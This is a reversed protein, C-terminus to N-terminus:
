GTPVQIPGTQWLDPHEALWTRADRRGLDRAADFFDPDFLLYSLLEGQLPSDSGLLRHVMQLDPDSLTGRWSKHNERFVALATDALADGREPAVAVYPVVRYAARGRSARHRDLAPRLADDEAMANTEALRRLDHRMPDDMVSGLLTAGSDGLDVPARDLAPDAPRPHLSGTGVAVLRGAGLELAPALPVRRRTAGDAYWGAAEEPSDVHVSPFLTPIAASAMLHEVGLRTRVFRRYGDPTSSGPLDAHHPDTETFMVVEGTRVATAVVSLAHVRGQELNDHLSDWAIARGLTRALPGTGFLGRLRFVSLGLTESAYRLAVVPVQQWLPRIVHRKTAQNLTAVLREVQEEADLHATSALAAALLAGASTGLHLVPQVGRRELEPLLVELVGVQYASRAGGADLVLAVDGPADSSPRARSPRRPAAPPM